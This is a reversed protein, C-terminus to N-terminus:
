LTTVFSEIILQQDAATLMESCHPYHLERWEQFESIKLPM